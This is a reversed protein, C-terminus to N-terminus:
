TSHNCAHKNNPKLEHSEQRKVRSYSSLSFELRLMGRLNLFVDMTEFTSIYFICKGQVIKEPVFLIQFPSRLNITKLM